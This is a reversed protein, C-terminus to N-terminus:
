FGLLPLGLTKGARALKDPNRMIYIAAIADTEIDFSV